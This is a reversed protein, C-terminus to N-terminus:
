VPTLLPFTRIPPFQFLNTELGVRHMVDGAWKEWLKCAKDQVEKSAFVAGDVVNGVLAPDKLFTVKFTDLLDQSKFAKLGRAKTSTIISQPAIAFAVPFHLDSAPLTPPPPVLFRSYCCCLSPPLIPM